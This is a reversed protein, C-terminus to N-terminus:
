LVFPGGFKETQGDGDKGAWHRLLLTSKCWGSVVRAPVAQRAEYEPLLSLWAKKEVVFSACAGVETKIM